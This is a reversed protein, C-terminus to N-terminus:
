VYEKFINYIKNLWKLDEKAIVATNEYSKKIAGVTDEVSKSEKDEHLAIIDHVENIKRLIKNNVSLQEVQQYIIHGDVSLKRINEFIYEFDGPLFFSGFLNKENSALFLIGEKGFNELKKRSIMDKVNECKSLSVSINKQKDVMRGIYHGQKNAHYQAVSIYLTVRAILKETYFEVIKMITRKFIQWPRAVIQAFVM